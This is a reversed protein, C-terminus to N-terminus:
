SEKFHIDRLRVHYTCKLSHIPAKSIFMFGNENLLFGNTSEILRKACEAPRLQQTALSNVIHHLVTCRVFSRIPDVFRMLLDFRHISDVFRAAFRGGFRCAARPPEQDGRGEKGGRPPAGRRRAGKEM